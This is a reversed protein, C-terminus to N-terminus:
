RHQVTNDGAVSTGSFPQSNHLYPENKNFENDWITNYTNKAFLPKGTRIVLLYELITATFFQLYLNFTIESM